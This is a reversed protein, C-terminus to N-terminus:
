GTPLAALHDDPYSETQGLWGDGGGASQGLHEWHKSWAQCLMHQWRSWRQGKILRVEPEWPTGCRWPQQLNPWWHNLTQATHGVNSSSSWVSNRRLKLQCRLRGAQVAELRRHMDCASRSSTVAEIIKMWRTLESLNRQCLHFFDGFLELENWCAIKSSRFSESSPTKNPFSFATLRHCFLHILYILWSRLLQRQYKLNLNWWLSFM